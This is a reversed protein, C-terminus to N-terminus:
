VEDCFVGVKGGWKDVLWTCGGWVVGGYVRGSNLLGWDWELGEGVM